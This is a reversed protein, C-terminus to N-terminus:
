FPLYEIRDQYEVPNGAYAALVLTNLLDALMSGARILFIGPSHRGARLYTALHGPLTRRDLSVFVRGNAEAWSLVDPDALGLPLDPLDGVRVVDLVDVGRGNHQQIAQWLGGGRLNEDLLYRPPM